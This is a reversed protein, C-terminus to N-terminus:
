VTGNNQLIRAINMQYRAKNLKIYLLPLGAIALAGVVGLAGAEISSSFGLALAFLLLPLIFLLFGDTVQNIRESQVEVLDGVQVGVLDHAECLMSRGDKAMICNKCGNCQAKQGLAVTARKGSTEIVTGIEITM